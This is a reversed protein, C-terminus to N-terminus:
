YLNRVNSGCWKAKEGTLAFNKADKFLQFSESERRTLSKNFFVFWAEKFYYHPSKEISGVTVGNLVIRYTPSEYSAFTKWKEGSCGDKNSIIKMANGKNPNDNLVM